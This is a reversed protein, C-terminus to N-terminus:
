KLAEDKAAKMAEGASGKIEDIFAQIKEKNKELIPKVIMRYVTQAGQTKPHMLYVFFALKVFFYMPIISLIIGGFEDLLTFM